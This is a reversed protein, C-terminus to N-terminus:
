PIAQPFQEALLFVAPNTPWQFAFPSHLFGECFPKHILKLIWINQRQSCFYASINNDVVNALQQKISESCTLRHIKEHNVKQKDQVNLIPAQILNHKFSHQTGLSSATSFFRFPQEQTNQLNIVETRNSSFVDSFRRTAYQPAQHGVSSCTTHVESSTAAFSADTLHFDQIHHDTLFYRKHTWHIKICELQM